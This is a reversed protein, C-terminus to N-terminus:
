TRCAGAVANGSCEASASGVKVENALELETVVEDNVVAVIRDLLLTEDRAGDEQANAAVSALFLVAALSIRKM